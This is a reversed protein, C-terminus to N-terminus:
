HADRSALFAVAGDCRSRSFLAQGHQFFLLSLFLRLRNKRLMRRAKELSEDSKGYKAMVYLQSFTKHRLKLAEIELGPPSSRGVLHMVKASPILITTYGRARSSMCIDDDEFYMFINPDFFYEADVFASMRLLMLAGSLSFSCTDGVVDGMSFSSNKNMQRRRMLPAPLTRQVVGNEDIIGPALIAADPYCVAASLLQNITGSEIFCADPNMLLSFPTKVRELAVNNAPGFGINEPMVILKVQSFHEQIYEVTGDRSANDVVIISAGEPISKLASGVVEKSNYTVLVVTVKQITADSM